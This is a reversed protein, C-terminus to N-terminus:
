NKTLVEDLNLLLSGVLTWAALQVRDLATDPGSDGIGTLKEAAEPNQQFHAWEEQYAAVLEDLEEPSAYRGTCRRFMRASRERDSAAWERMTREALGCAAEVFQPDNLLLLAQLPTNTRERRMVCAERSPGDFTSMQPPPSTRKIFTYLSRRHVKDPGKDAKFRVTNSGSYGVAFWLGDPQPPKVSGGGIQEVLLGSVFLAQDRLMEADLRFRPGRGLLRNGPDKEILDPTLRSSQRYTASMVMTKMLAKVDWDSERFTAALWDLLEPHSPPEGQSGFDESTKVLGVGFLQQWFRNVAVRATLPHSQDTLWLGLGLRDNPAGEPMPPLVAPTKRTVVEDRQSYEGRRLLYATRPEAREKWVLTMPIARKVAARGERARKLAAKAAVLEPHESVKNRYHEQLLARQNDSREDEALSIAELVKKPLDSVSDILRFYFGTSGGYNVLKLLLENDGEKLPLELTEQDAAVERSVDKSFLEKQNLYVKIGDGSGLSIKVRQDKPSQIKRYLFNAATDGPLDTHVMGDKWTPRHRWAVTEETVLKFADELAVPKGEPGYKRPLLYLRVDNFPGVTYWDNLVVSSTEGDEARQLRVVQVEAEWRRQAEDVASWPKLVIQQLAVIQQDYDELQETQFDSPLRLIPAHEKKNGDLPKGDLSNFYAFFSYFDKMTLPDFKHNHCRMCEFTLGMFVTSTTVVRDVVNRVFVEETISGGEGTTVNCRNFGTAVLQDRTANPLLDGALQEIIFERYSLNRNFANVVWDRYPWIERYNDLHLGHTDGYRVADLWYRAMHEGYRSSCLLRDVVKEYADVSPDNLFADTEELTPPLGTLDFTVRRILVEPAAELPSDLDAEDLRARIFHDVPNRSWFDDANVPVVPRQIPEFSWHDAWTAGESIWQRLQEIQKGSLAKKFQPPPMREDEDTSLVRDLLVSKEPHGPVIASYGGLDGKASDEMDFRLDAKRKSADPGHCAYCHDSLIPRIDWNFDVAQRRLVSDGVASDRGAIWYIGVLLFLRLLVIRVSM